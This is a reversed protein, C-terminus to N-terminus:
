RAKLLLKQYDTLDDSSSRILCNSIENILQSPFTSCHKMVKELGSKIIYAGSFEYIEHLQIWTNQKFFFKEAPLFFVKRLFHCGYSNPKKNGNSTTKIFIFPEGPNPNNLLIIFKEGIEGDHFVFRSHFYIGGRM